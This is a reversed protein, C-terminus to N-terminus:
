GLLERRAQFADAIGFLYLLPLLAGPAVYSVSDSLGFRPSWAPIYGAPGLFLALITVLLFLWVLGRLPRKGLLHGLGPVVLGLMLAFRSRRVTNRELKTQRLWVEKPDKQSIQLHEMLCEPCMSIATGTEGCEKCFATRCRNCRRAVIGRTAIFGLAFLVLLLSLALFAFRDSGMRGLAYEHFPLWGMPHREARLTSTLEHLSSSSLRGWAVSGTVEVDSRCASFPELTTMRKRTNPVFGDSSRAKVYHQKAKAEDGAAMLMMALNLHAPRNGPDVSLARRYHEVAKSAIPLTTDDLVTRPCYVALSMAQANGLAVDVAPDRFGLSFATELHARGKKLQGQRVHHVGQAYAVAGAYSRDRHIPDALDNAYPDCLGEECAVVSSISSERYTADLWIARALLPLTAVLALALLLARRTGTNYFAGCFATVLLMPLLFGVEMYVATVIVTLLLVLSMPYPIAYVTFHSLRHHLLPLYRLLAICMVIFVSILIGIAAASSLVAVLRLRTGYSGLSARIFDVAEIPLRKLNGLDHELIANISAAHVAPHEPALVAGRNIFTYSVNAASDPGLTRAMALYGFLESLAQGVGVRDLSDRFADIQRYADRYVHNAVKNEILGWEARLDRYFRDLGPLDDASATAPLAMCLLLTAIALLKLRGM